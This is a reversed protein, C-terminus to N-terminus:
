ISNFQVEYHDEVANTINLKQLRSSSCMSTNFLVIRFCIRYFTLSEDMLSIRNEM